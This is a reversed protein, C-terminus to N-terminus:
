RVVIVPLSRQGDATEVQLMYNGVALGSVNIPEIHNTFTGTLTKTFVTQGINNLLRLQVNDYPKKFEMNVQIQDSVPNPYVSVLNNLPLVDKTNTTSKQVVRILPVISNGFFIRTDNVDLETVEYDINAINGDASFGLVTFYVPASAVGHVFASDMALEQAGFDRAESALLFFQPDTSVSAVYEVVVMYVFGGKMIIPDGPNDFNELVTNLIANDGETGTFTYDNYGVFRRESSEAIRDGNTDTWQELYVSVTKGAMDTPNNVGWTIHDVEADVVPQFVNGYAYSLPAGATYIASNVAISRTFGDELAFTDGGVTYNFAIVNDSPNFDVSDQTLTYAANYSADVHPLNILNPFLRNEVLTNADVTGYTLNQNYVVASTVSNTVKHNLVVNTQPCAGANFIDSLAAFPYVQNAPISAFPAIAYFNSQVRSNSCETEVIKVDDIAWLYYNDNYVFRIQLSDHGAAGPMFFRQVNDAFFNSNIPFETNVEQDTWNGWDVGVDRTRWSIFYTSQYQRIAQTWTLSLGAVDWGGSFLVPSVLFKQGPTACSGAGFNGAIGANDNFDSDVGVAGDCFTPGSVAYGAAAYAGKDILCDPLYQFGKTSDAVACTGSTTWGNAEIGGGFTEWWLSPEVKGNPFVGVRLTGETATTNGTSWVRLIYTHSALGCLGSIQFNNDEPVTSSFCHSAVENAGCSEYLAMGIASVDTAVTSNDFYVRIVFGAPDIVAPTTFKFFIDDTYFSASCVTNPITSATAGRTDGETVVVNAESASFVVNFAGSCDDNAPQAWVSASWSMLVILLSSIRLTIKMM